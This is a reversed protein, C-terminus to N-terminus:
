QSLPQRHCTCYAVFVIQWSSEMFVANDVADALTIHPYHAHGQAHGKRGWSCSFIDEQGSVSDPRNGLPMVLGLWSRISQRGQPELVDIM